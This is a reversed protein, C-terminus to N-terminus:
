EHNAPQWPTDNKIMTNLMTVLKRMSAVMAVKYEKGNSILRQYYSRIVPNHQRASFTAMYLANRPAARGKGIRRKGRLKGSDQNLPALGILKAVERRNLQGLEPVEALLTQSTTKGVGPVSEMIITKRISEPCQAVLKSLQAEIDKIQQSITELVQEISRRIEPRMAQHLRNREGTQLEILQRRRAVLEEQIQQNESLILTNQPRTAVGFEAIVEADIRDTKELRGLSKAYDRVQRPNVVAVEVGQSQLFRVLRKEYGGTAELVVQAPELKQLQDWLQQFGEPDNSCNLHLNTGSCAVVLEKSAVDIGVVSRIPECKSNDNFM